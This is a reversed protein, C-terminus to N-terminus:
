RCSLDNHPLAKAATSFAPLVLPEPAYASPVLVEIAPDTGFTTFAAGDSLTRAVWGVGDVSICEAATPGLAGVGCRAVIAPSGWAHIAPDSPHTDVPRQGAVRAPWAPKRCVETAGGPTPVGVEIPRSCASLGAAGGVLLTVAALRALSTQRGCAPRSLRPRGHM